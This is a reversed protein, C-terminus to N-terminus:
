QKCHKYESKKSISSRRGNTSCRRSNNKKKVLSAIYTSGHQLLALIEFIWRCIWSNQFRVTREVWVHHFHNDLSVLCITGCQLMFCPRYHSVAVHFLAYLAMSCCSVLCITGYQLMSCPMYHWVAVHFLAYLAMSYCPVLCITGYQLMFCPM